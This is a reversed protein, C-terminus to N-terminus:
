GGHLWPLLAAITISEVDPVTAAAASGLTAATAKAQHFRTCNSYDKEGAPHAISPGNLSRRLYVKLWQQPIVTDLAM